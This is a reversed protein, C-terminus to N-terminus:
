SALAAPTLYYAVKGLRGQLPRVAAMVELDARAFLARAARDNPLFLHQRPRIHKWDLGAARQHPSEWEPLEIVLIGGPEALCAKLHRLCTLPRTLHEFVDHLTIVDAPSDVAQWGGVRLPRGMAQGAAVMAACPELGEARYGFGGAASVYAGTAAGVDVLRADLKRPPFLTTLTTLRAIAATVQEPDKAFFSPQGGAAQETVPYATDDAYLGEYEAESKWAWALLMRGECRCERLAVGERMGIRTGDSGCLPCQAGALYTQM